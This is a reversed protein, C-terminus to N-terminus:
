KMRTALIILVSLISAIIPYNRAQVADLNALKEKRPEVYIVDNQRLYFLNSSVFDKSNLNIRHIQKFGLSDRILLVNERKGFITLDGAQGLADFFNVKENSFTYTSPRLVEGLVTVRFNTYRVDVTPTKFYDGAKKTIVDNLQKTTLGITNIKGLLPIEIIGDKNIRYTSSFPISLGQNSSAVQPMGTTTPMNLAAVNPSTLTLANSSLGDLTNISINLIDDYQILPEKFAVTEVKTTKVTDAIDQFYAINKYNICSSFFSGCCIVILLLKLFKNM